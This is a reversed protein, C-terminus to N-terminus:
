SIFNASILYSVDKQFITIMKQSKKKMKKKAKNNKKENKIKRKWKNKKKKNGRYCRDIFITTRVCLFIKSTKM